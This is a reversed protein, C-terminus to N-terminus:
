PIVIEILEGNSLKIEMNLKIGNEACQKLIEALCKNANTAQVSFGLDEMYHFGCTSKKTLDMNLKTKKIIKISDGIVHYIEILIKFYKLKEVPNGGVSCETITSKTYDYTLASKRDIMKAKIVFRCLIDGNEQPIIDHGDFQRGDVKKLLVDGNDKHTM